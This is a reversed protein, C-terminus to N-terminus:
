RGAPYHDIRGTADLGDRSEEQNSQPHQCPRHRSASLFGRGRGSSFANRVPLPVEALRVPYRKETYFEAILTGDASYVSTVAPPRYDEVSSLQPLDRTIYFYGWVGAFTGAVLSCMGLFAVIFLLRKFFRKLM